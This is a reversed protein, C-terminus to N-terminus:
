GGYKLLRLGELRLLEPFLAKYINCNPSKVDFRGTMRYTLAPCGGTCWYRWACDRCGEKEEVPLNQIGNQDSMVLELPDAARIDTVPQGIEMHCKAVGGKHDIVLYSRGVGCTYRHPADLRARDVLTGLLSYPPLNQEIVAFAAKMAAIIKEEQYVLDTMAASCENERYFNLSFPLKRDLIYAIVDPLGDLNRNSITVNISPTFNHRALRDLTREVYAFSGRGNRFQRQRDHYEGVGDLSIMLRLGYTQMDRIMRNSIAIGNSLVVGDLELQYRKALQQAYAHLALVLSYNLTAEGGAYKLKVKPFNHTQASRFVAEVAQQGQELEMPDPTKYIYCYDCGLNCDNTVHLWATLEQSQGKRLFTQEGVVQMLGLELLRKIEKLQIQSPAEGDVIATDVIRSQRFEELLAIQFTDLLCVGSQSLPNFGAFKTTSIQVIIIDPNTIIENELRGKTQVIFQLDEDRSKCDEEINNVALLVRPKQLALPAHTPPTFM